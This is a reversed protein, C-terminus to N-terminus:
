NQKRDVYTDRRNIQGLSVGAPGELKSLLSSAREGDIRGAILDLYIMVKDFLLHGDDWLAEYRFNRAGLEQWSHILSATSIPLKQFMTNRCEQDAALYHEQAYMDRLAVKHEECPKGCDRFSSGESLFAAFVCHEMHFEPMHHHIFVEAVNCDINSLLSEVQWQNLDLGLAIQSLGKKHLYEFSMSNTVNLSFDGLLAIEPAETRFFKLAGLNRVLIADPALRKIVNLHHYEGPKLIRTTAIACKFGLERLSELSERYDKGFEYDLIFLGLEKLKSSGSQKVKELFGTLQTHSRVLLNLAGPSVKAEYRSLSLQYDNDFSVNRTVQLEILAELMKRKLDKLSKQAIFLNEGLECSFVDCKFATGTLACLVSKVQEEDCPRNQALSPLHEECLVTLESEGIRVLVKIPTDRKLQAHIEIPLRKLLDRHTVTQELKKVVAPDKNIFVRDGSNIKHLPFDRGMSVRLGERTKTVEYVFGGVESARAGKSTFLMGMGPKLELASEILLSKKDVSLVRGALEGRHNSYSGDVLAQHDVGHLWGSFFGRSYTRELDSKTIGLSFEENSTMKSKYLRGVSSVYGPGKLRGEVKFSDIGIRQLEDIEDLGYLDKPSVVYNRDLSREVKGDVILDYDLRCSQACQGRNASRGGIAESTFCQGSYAVCLAGHVFVELEKDTKQRIKRMEPMSVERGLVFRELKLDALLEIALENTVTMQTSAHIVQTPAMARIMQALGLDQVIFADIGMPLVEKLLGLAKELEDQFLLINFALHVHVGYLHCLDVMERLEELTHDKARGRANFGPMGIYVADAGNHIAALCM